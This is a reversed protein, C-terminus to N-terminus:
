NQKTQHIWCQVMMEHIQFVTLLALCLHEDVDVMQVVGCFLVSLASVAVLLVRMQYWFVAVHDRHLYVVVPVCLLIHALTVYVFYQSSHFLFGYYVSFVSAAFISWLLSFTKIESKNCIQIQEFSAEKLFQWLHRWLSIVSVCLIFMAASARDVFATASQSVLHAGFLGYIAISVFCIFGALWVSKCVINTTNEKNSKIRYVTVGLTTSLFASLMAFELGNAHHSQADIHLFVAFCIFLSLCTLIFASRTIKGVIGVIFLEASVAAIAYFAMSWMPTMLGYVFQCMKLSPTADVLGCQNHFDTTSMLCYDLWSGCEQPKSCFICSNTSACGDFNNNFSSCTFLSEIGSFMATLDTM